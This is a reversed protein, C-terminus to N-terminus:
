PPSPPSKGDTMDSSAYLFSHTHWSTSSYYPTHWERKRKKIDKLNSRHLRISVGVQYLLVAWVINELPNRYAFIMPSTLLTSIVYLRLYVPIQKRKKYLIIYVQWIYVAVWFFGYTFWAGVIGIDSAYFHYLEAWKGSEDPHGSGLFFTLPNAFIKTLFFPYTYIRVNEDNNIQNTTSEVYEAFLIDFGTYLGM